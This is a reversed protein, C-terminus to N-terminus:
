DEIKMNEEDWRGEQAARIRKYVEATEEDSLKKPLTQGDANRYCGETLEYEPLDELQVVDPVFSKLGHAEPNAIAGPLASSAVVEDVTTYWSVRGRGLQDATIIAVLMYTEADFYYETINTIEEDFGPYSDQLRYVHVYGFGDLVQEGIDQVYPDALLETLKHVRDADLLATSSSTLEYLENRLADVAVAADDKWTMEICQVTSDAPDGLHAIAAVNNPTTMTYQPGPGSYYSSTPQGLSDVFAADAYYIGDKVLNRELVGGGDSMEVYAVTGDVNTWTETVRESSGPNMIVLTHRYLDAIRMSAVTEEYAAQVRKLFSAHSFPSLLSFSLAVVLMVLTFAPIFMPILLRWSPRAKKALRRYLQEKFEQDVETSLEETKLWHKLNNMRRNM